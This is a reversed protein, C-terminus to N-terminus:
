LGANYGSHDEDCGQGARRELRRKAGKLWMVYHEKNCFTDYERNEPYLLELSPANEDKINLVHDPNTDGLYPNREIERGCYLCRNADSM